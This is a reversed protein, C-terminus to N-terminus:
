KEMRNILRRKKATVRWGRLRLRTRGKWVRGSLRLRVGGINLLRLRTEREIQWKWGIEKELNAITWM